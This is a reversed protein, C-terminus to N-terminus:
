RGVGLLLCFNLSCESRRKEQLLELSSPGESVRLHHLEFEAVTQSCRCAAHADPLVYLSHTIHTSSHVCRLGLVSEGSAKEM